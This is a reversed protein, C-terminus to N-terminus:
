QGSNSNSPANQREEWRRRMESSAMMERYKLPNRVEVDRHNDIEELLKEAFFKLKDLESYQHILSLEARGNKVTKFFRTARYDIQMRKIQGDLEKLEQVDTQLDSAEDSLKDWKQELAVQDTNALIDAIDYRPTM